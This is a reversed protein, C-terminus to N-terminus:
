VLLKSRVLIYACLLHVYNICMAGENWTSSFFIFVTGSIEVSVFLIVKEFVNLSRVVGYSSSSM